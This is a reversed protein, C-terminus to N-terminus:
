RLNIYDNLDNTFCDWERDMMIVQGTQRYHNQKLKNFGPDSPMSELRLYEPLYQERSEWFVKFKKRSRWANEAHKIREHFMDNYVNPYRRNPRHWSKYCCLTTELTFYGIDKHPFRAQAEQLLSAGEQKLWSITDPQYTVPTKWWDLDDRGVVKCIGNRHSRSGSIDDLFLTPCDLPEGAIKLYETYSFTALRGFSRFNNIVYDWVNSFNEHKDGTYLEDFMEEQTRGGLLDIYSQVVDEFQNKVYRRDTDWGFRNYNQRYWTSINKVASPEPAQLFILYTTLVNQTIGNLFVFWLREERSLNLEDFIHPFAYYVAGAHGRFKLHFEYFRLFVERRFEPRRFDMGLELDLVESKNNIDCFRGIQQAEQTEM